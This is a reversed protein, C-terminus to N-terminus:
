RVVQNPAPNGALVTRVNAMACAVMARRTPETASGIHPTLVLRPANRVVDSVQPENRFVDLGAGLLRGTNLAWALAEEDVLDGRATNVFVSGSRMLSFRERNMIGVTEGTAPLHLTVVDSQPLLAELPLGKAGTAREFGGKPTRATYLLRMGFAVGLHGVVQGIRGAGVIGLTAGSLQLGLFEAPRWGPWAGRRLVREAEGIGRATALILAWTLEATAQTLVDPTNTVIVGRRAAADLDVNDYGVAVNAVVRLAPLRTLSGEDIRRTLLTVLGEFPGSPVPEGAAFWTVDLGELDQAALLSRVEAAVLIPAAM